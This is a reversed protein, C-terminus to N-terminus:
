KITSHLHYLNLQTMFYLVKTKKETESFVLLFFCYSLDKKKNLFFYYYKRMFQMNKLHPGLIVQHGTGAQGIFKIIEATSKGKRRLRLSLM